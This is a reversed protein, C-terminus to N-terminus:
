LILSGSLYACDLFSLARTTHVKARSNICHQTPDHAGYGLLQGDNFSPPM